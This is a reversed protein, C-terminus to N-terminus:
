NERYVYNDYEVEFKLKHKSEEKALGLFVNKLDENPAKEALAMYMRYAAQEKKMAVVLAEDYSMDPTPTVNIIYDSIKLDLMRPESFSFMGEEKVKLLLAKHAVEEKAFHLLAAKMDDSKAKAALEAYFEVAKQEENMAFYLIEDITNFDKM